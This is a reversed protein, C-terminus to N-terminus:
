QAWWTVLVIAGLVIVIAAIVRWSDLPPESTQNVPTAPAPRDPAPPASAAAPLDRGCHKCVIADALIQEACYPCKKSAPRPVVPARYLAAGILCAVSLAGFLVTVYPFVQDIAQLGRIQEPTATRPDIRTGVMSGAVVAIVLAILAWGLFLGPYGRGKVAMVPVIVLTALVCLLFLGV